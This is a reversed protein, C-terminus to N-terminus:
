PNIDLGERLPLPGHIEMRASNGDIRGDKRFLSSLRQLKVETTVEGPKFQGPPAGWVVRSETPTIIELVGQRAMLRVDIAGVQHFYPENVLVRLLALAAQVDTGPWAKMYKTEPNPDAPALGAGLIAKVEAAGPAFVMPMIMGDWSILHDRGNHNVVAAPVRWKGRIQVRDRGVRQVKPSGDFWGCRELMRGVDALAAASLPDRGRLLGLSREILADIESQPVWRLGETSVPPTLEITIADQVLLERATQDLHKVGFTMGTGMAIVCLGAVIPSAIRWVKGWDTSSAARSAKRSSKKRTRAM